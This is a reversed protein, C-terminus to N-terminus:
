NHITLTDVSRRQGDTVSQRSRTQGHCKVIWSVFTPITTSSPKILFIDLVLPSILTIHSSRSMGDNIVHPNHHNVIERITQKKKHAHCKLLRTPPFGRLTEAAHWKRILSILPTREAKSRPIKKSGRLVKQTQTKKQPWHFFHQRKHVYVSTFIGSLWSSVSRRHHRMLVLQARQGRGHKKKKETKRQPKIHLLRKWWRALLFMPEQFHHEQLPSFTHPLWTTANM